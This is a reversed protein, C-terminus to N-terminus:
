SHPFCLDRPFWASRSIRMEIRNEGLNMVRELLLAPLSGARERPTLQAVRHICCVRTQPSQIHTLACLVRGFKKSSRKPSTRIRPMRPLEASGQYRVHKTGQRVYVRRLCSYAANMVHGASAAHLHLVAVQRGELGPGAVEVWGRGKWPRSSPSAVTNVLPFLFSASSFVAILLGLLSSYIFIYLVVALTTPIKYTAPNTIPMPPIISMWDM